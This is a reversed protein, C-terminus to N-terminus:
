QLTGNGIDELYVRQVGIQERKTAERVTGAGPSLHGTTILRVATLYNESTKVTDACQMVANSRSDNDESDLRASCPNFHM